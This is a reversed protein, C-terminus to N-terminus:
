RARDQAAVWVDMLGIGMSGIDTWGSTRDVCIFLSDMVTFYLTGAIATM